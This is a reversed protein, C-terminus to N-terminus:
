PYSKRTYPTVADGSLTALVEVEGGKVREYYSIIDVVRRGVIWHAIPPAEVVVGDLATFGFCAYHIVVRYLKEM